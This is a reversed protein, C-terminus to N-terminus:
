EAYVPRIYLGWTRPCIMTLLPGPFDVFLAKETDKSSRTSTWYYGHHGVASEGDDVKYGCFPFFLKRGNVKSTMLVGKVGRYTGEEMVCYMLLEDFEDYTPMRWPEGPKALNVYAADHDLPLTDGSM